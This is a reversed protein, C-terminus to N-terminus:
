IEIVFPEEDGLCLAKIRRFEKTIRDFIRLEQDQVEGDLNGMLVIIERVSISGNEYKYYCFAEEEDRFIVVDGTLISLILALKDMDTENNIHHLLHSIFEEKNKTTM